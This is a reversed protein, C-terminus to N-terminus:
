HRNPDGIRGPDPVLNYRRIEVEDVLAHAKMTLQGDVVEGDQRIAIEDFCTLATEEDLFDKEFEHPGIRVLVKYSIM